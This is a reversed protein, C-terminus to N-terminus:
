KKGEEEMLFRCIEARSVVGVLFGERVVPIYKLNRELLLQVAEELDDDEKLTIISREMYDRVKKEGIQSMKRVVQAFSRLFLEGPRKHPFVSHIIDAESIFGILRHQKDVVPVGSVRRRSLINAVEKLPTNESVATLDRIIVDKVKKRAL